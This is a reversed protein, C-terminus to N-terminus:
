PIQALQERLVKELEELDAENFGAQSYVIQGDPSVVLTRPISERAFRAFVSRDPDAAMPFTYGYKARYTQVTETTEERGIILMQFHAQSQNAKWIRELHPLELQCPGCWTAFFNILTVRKDDPLSFPRGEDTTLTFSPAADGVRVLSSEALSAERAAQFKAMQERGLSPIFVLWLIAQQTGILGVIAALSGLLRVVHTRRKPSRWRVIMAILSVVMVVLAIVVGLGLVATISNYTSVSM